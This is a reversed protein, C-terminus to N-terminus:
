DQLETQCFTSAIVVAADRISRVRIQKGIFEPFEELMKESLVARMEGSAFDAAVVRVSRPGDALGRGIAKGLAEKACWFRTAWEYQLQQDDIQNLIAIESDDFAIHQFGVGRKAIREVDIGIRPETSAIAGILMGAHSITVNPFNDPRARQRLNAIPKGFEDHDIEVDASFLREGTMHMWLIRVAEKAAVRGFLWQTKRDAPLTLQKYEALERDSLTAMAGVPQMSPNQLDTPVEFKRCVTVPRQDSTAGAVNALHPSLGIASNWDSSLFYVDKPGHFNFESFPLYFRWYQAGKLRCWVNHQADVVEFDYGFQRASESVNMVQSTFSAGVAPRTGYFEIREIGIPLLIRGSQDPQELHWACMPHMAIDLLVPDFLFQPDPDSAFLGTRPQTSVEAVIGNDGYRLLRDVGRFLDGHFLNKYLQDIGVTTERTETLEFEIPTPPVPPEDSLVLTATAAPRREDPGHEDVRWYYLQADVRTEGAPDPNAVVEATIRAISLQDVYDLWKFLKVNELALVHKDPLLTQVVECFIELTFTMPVVPLGHQQPNIRSLERGGVTHEGAFGDESLDMLRETVIRQGPELQIIEGLLPFRPTPATPSNSTDKFTTSTGNGSSIESPDRRRKGRVATRRPMRPRNKSQLFQQMVVSQTELFQDMLNLYGHMASEHMASEHMPSEHMPSHAEVSLQEMMTPDLSDALPTVDDLEEERAASEIELAPEVSQEHFVERATFLLDTNVDLQHVLLQGIAHNLQTIGSLRQVNTPVILSSRGRLIDETFSCLNNRPGVEIFCRVGEAYLNNIMDTFRVPCEWHAVTLKRIDDPDEPFPGATTCSYITTDPSRFPMEDFIRRLTRMYPTFLPTHYPQDLPLQQYVMGRRKVEQEVLAMDDVFGVLVTQHPCNQMAVYARLERKADRNAQELIEQGVTDSTALAILKSPIADVPKDEGLGQFGLGLNLFQQETGVICQSTFLAALEGASHGAIVDCRIELQQMLQFMIWDGLLVAFMANDIRRLDSELEARQETNLQDTPQFFRLVSKTIRRNVETGHESMNLIPQIDVFKETLDALMGVYQSGEGPLLFAVKDQKELGVRTFYIGSVDRIQQCSDDGLRVSARELKAILDEPHTAVIALRMGSEPLESFLRRSLQMLSIDGNNSVEETLVKARGVLSAQDPAAIVFLESDWAQVSAPKPQVTSQSQIV